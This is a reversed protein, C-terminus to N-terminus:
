AVMTVALYTLVGANLLLLVPAVKAVIGSWRQGALHGAIGVGLLAPMTGMAFAIMGFAGAVPDGSSAAAALAGYLLGCPIFGLMVGLAYGRWGTPTSFLPRAARSVKASWWTEAKRGGPLVLKLKPIAYGLFLLAALALLGASLWRLGEHRGAFGGGAGVSRGAGCLHHNTRAPLTTARSRDVPAVRADPKGPHSGPPEDSSEVRLPGCMGTCHTLGGILGAMVLSILLSGRETFIVECHSLGAALSTMLANQDM